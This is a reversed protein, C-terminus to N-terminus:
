HQNVPKWCQPHNTEEPKGLREGKCDCMMWLVTQDPEGTQPHSIEVLEIPEM